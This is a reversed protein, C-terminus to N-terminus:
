RCFIKRFTIQDNTWSVKSFIYTCAFRKCICGLSFLIKNPSVIIKFMSSSNFHEVGYVEKKLIYLTYLQCIRSDKLLVHHHLIKSYGFYGHHPDWSSSVCGEWLENQHPNLLPPKFNQVSFASNPSSPLFDKYKWLLFPSVINASHNENQVEEPCIYVSANYVSTWLIYNTYIKEM